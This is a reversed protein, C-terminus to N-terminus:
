PWISAYRQLPMHVTYWVGLGPWVNTFASCAMLSAGAEHHLTVNSDIGYAGQVLNATGFYRDPEHSAVVACDNATTLLALHFYAVRAFWMIGTLILVFIPMIVAMEASAQGSERSARLSRMTPAPFLRFLTKAQNIRRFLM